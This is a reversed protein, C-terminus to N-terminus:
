KEIPVRKNHRSLIDNNYNNNREVTITHSNVQCIQCTLTVLLMLIVTSMRVDIMDPCGNFFTDCILGTGTLLQEGKVVTTDAYLSILHANIVTLYGGIFNTVFMLFLSTLIMPGDLSWDFIIKLYEMLYKFSFMESELRSKKILRGMAYAEHKLRDIQGKESTKSQFKDFVKNNKVDILLLNSKGFSKLTNYAKLAKSKTVYDSIEPELNGKQHLLCFWHADKTTLFPDTGYGQVLQEM